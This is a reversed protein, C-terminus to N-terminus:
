RTRINYFNFHHFFDVRALFERWLSLNEKKVTASTGTAPWYGREFGLDLLPERAKAPEQALDVITVTAEMVDRGREDPLALNAVSKSLAALPVRLGEIVVESQVVADARAAFDDTAAAGPEPAETCSMLSAALIISVFVAILARARGHMNRKM